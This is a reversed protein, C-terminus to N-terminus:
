HGGGVLSLRAFVTAGFPNKGYVGDLVDPKGYFAGSAGLALEFPKLDIRHAYGFQFKSVRFRQDHLPDDHDPFLEDNAVNEFRGFVTNSKDLDYNVEALWATLPSDDHEEGPLEDAHDEVRRKSSFALMASLGDFNAYHASATFRREDEGPHVAEPEKIWGYSAQIALNASPTLTGRLSYSDLKPTEIDWRDEDPEAGRFLSGELQFASTKVGATVVGYTIHTSDFWHHTIPPEPNLAASDRHMFASPGLAPEGVPGGYLFVTAGEGVNVDIRAALEMFLDHPHQRDVLPEGDATEGTAFLNPYGRADMLPELSFMSKLQIRGWGTQREANLMGMSTVYLQDDGRPGSHDTYQTSVFGHAMVMWPDNALMLGHHGMPMGGCAGGVGESAGPLLSTGSGEKTRLVYGIAICADDEAMQHQGHDMQSHDMQSHDMQEMDHSQDATESASQPTADHHSHDQAAAPYAIVAGGLLALTRLIM